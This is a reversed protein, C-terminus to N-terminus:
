LSQFMIAANLMLFGVCIGLLEILNLLKWEVVLASFAWRKLLCNVLM